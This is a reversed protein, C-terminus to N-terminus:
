IIEEDKFIFDENDNISRIINELVLDSKNQLNELFNEAITFNPWSNKQEKISKFQQMRRFFFHYAYKKARIIDYNNNSIEDKSIKSLVNIYHKRSDIDTAIGKNRIFGEGCVIVSKGRAAMEIGIRSGYILINKCKEFIKYTSINDEPKIIFINNPLKKYKKFIEEYVKQRSKKIFNVEAPSIRIILQAEDYKIFHDITDNIWELQDKYFNSPFDIQADWLVSTALGILPKKFNVGKKYLYDEALINPKEKYFHIWDKSGTERDLLYDDIKKEIKENFNIREWNKNDEYILSRHYTDGSTICFSNRRYGPCWTSTPIGKSRAIDLIIGHPVYIGHNLLIHDFKKEKLINDMVYKSIVASKFYQEFIKKFNKENDDNTKAFYRLAGSYAHEGISINDIKKKRLQDLSYNLNLNNLINEKDEKSIFDSFKNIKFGGKKQLYNNASYFCIDCIKKKENKIIINEDTNFYTSIICAPLIEDCFLFEVEAGNYELGLGILSELVIQAKLGGASTAILIKKKNNKLKINEIKSRLKKINPLKELNFDVKLKKIARILDSTFLM